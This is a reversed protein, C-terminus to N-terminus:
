EKFKPMINIKITKKTLEGNEERSLFVLQYQGIFGPGPQWYFIGRGTDLTSGVPLPKLRNGIVHHGRWQSCGLDIEVRELERIEIHIDGKEDPYIEQPMSDWNCGKGIIVPGFSDVPISSVRKDVSEDGLTWQANSLSLQGTTGTNQITFYRSGIGDTNGANDTAVWQITHVGNEYATTDLYFYGIAGYSNSYGPFLNAIDARYINYIPHGINVGDVYVKITSGDTPIYNPQPTLVWGWNIFSRGSATGGQTPTDIAGFPKFANANDVLITKTGLTVHNGEMDTAIAHITFIGNGNNPLFNTLLMYGWGGKYNNPYNPYAQEVDPRAGEVFIADGIYVKDNGKTRYIKVSEVGIDDLVWGTVAISSNVTSGDIPTAFDGFPVSTQNLNYVNLTVMSTLPSNTANPDSVTITGTYTGAALGLSDVSVTVIGSGTGSTPTCSIWPQNESVSWNLTGTGNNSIMINQSRGVIGSTTGGFNLTTRNLSIETINSNTIPSGFIEIEGIFLWDEKWMTRTKEFKIVVSSANIDGTHETWAGSYSTGPNTSTRAFPSEMIDANWSDAFQCNGMNYRIKNIKYAGQLNINVTVIMLQYYDDNVWAVCGDEIGASVSQYNLSGDTADSPWEGVHDQYDDAGNTTVLVPKGRAVNTYQVISFTSNSTDSPSGDSAGSIRIMCNTSPTEPVTWFYSGDNSTSSIVISWSSGNNTSYEIKVNGVTGTTTWTITHSGGAELSEGGNPSIVTVSPTTGGCQDQHAEWDPDHSDLWARLTPDTAYLCNYGIDLTYIATLNTLSLPIIGSLKNHSLDLTVLDWLNGLQSPISGSRQNNNLWLEGLWDNNGLQSPISGSLQNDSLDLVTLSLNGLTYPISDSLQNNSLFLEELHTLNSLQSPISGNLKNNSLSLFRVNGSYGVKVGFWSGETGPMAFGDTHLPPTKWGSNNIWSDGNTRNYLAILAARESAPIAGHIFGSFQSLIFAFIFLIIRKKMIEGIKIFTWFLKRM